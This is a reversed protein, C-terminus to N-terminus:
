KASHRMLNNKFHNRFFNILYILILAGWLVAIFIVLGIYTRPTLHHVSIVASKINQDLSIAINGHPTASYKVQKGNVKVNYKLSSYNWIPITLTGRKVDKVKLKIEQNTTPLIKFVKKKDNNEGIHRYTNMVVKSPQWPNKKNNGAVRPAYDFYARIGNLAEINENSFKIRSQIKTSTYFTKKMYTPKSLMSKDIRETNGLFSLFTIVSLILLLKHTFDVKKNDRLLYAMALIIFVSFWPLFRWTPAQILAIPTDKLFVWPFIQSGLILISISLMLLLRTDKNTIYWHSFLYISLVLISLSIYTDWRSVLSTTLIDLLDKTYPYESFPLKIPPLLGSKSIYVIRYLIPSSLILVIIIASLLHRVIMGINDFYNKWLYGVCLIILVTSAIITSIVHSYVILSMTIGFYLSLKYNFQTSKLIEICYVILLPFLAYAIGSALQGYHFSLLTVGSFSSVYALLISEKINKTILYCARAHIIWTVIMVLGLILQWQHVPSLWSTVLIFPWLTFDPYMGSIAQGTHSFSYINTWGPIHGNLFSERIEFVRSVHFVSDNIGSFFDYRVRFFIFVISVLIIVLLFLLEKNKLNKFM